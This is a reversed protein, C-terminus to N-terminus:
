VQTSTKSYKFTKSEEADAQPAILLLPFKKRESETTKTFPKSATTKLLCM